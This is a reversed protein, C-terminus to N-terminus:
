SSKIKSMDWIYEDQEEVRVNHIIRLILHKKIEHLNIIIILSYTVCPYRVKEFLWLYVIPFMNAGICAWKGTNKM